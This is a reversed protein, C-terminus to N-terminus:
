EIPGDPPSPPIRVWAGPVPSRKELAAGHVVRDGRRLKMNAGYPDNHDSERCNQLLDVGDVSQSMISPRSHMTLADSRMKFAM